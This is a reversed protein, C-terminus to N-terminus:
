SVMEVDVIWGAHKTRKKEYKVYIMVVHLLSHLIKLNVNVIVDMEMQQEDIM